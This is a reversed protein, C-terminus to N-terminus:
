IFTLSSFSDVSHNAWIISVLINESSRSALPINVEYGASRFKNVLYNLHVTTPVVERSISYQVHTEGNMSAKKIQEEIIPIYKDLDNYEKNLYANYEKLADLKTFTVKM